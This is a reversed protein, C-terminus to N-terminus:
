HIRVRVRASFVFRDAMRPGPPPRTSPTSSSTAPLVFFFLVFCFVCFLCCYFSQASLGGCLASVAGPLVNVNCGFYCSEFCTAQARSHTYSTQTHTHRVRKLSSKKKKAERARVRGGARVESLKTVATVKRTSGPRAAAGAAPMCAARAASPQARPGAPGPQAPRQETVMLEAHAM